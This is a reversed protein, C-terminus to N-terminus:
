NAPTDSGFGACRAARSTWSSGPRAARREWTARYGTDAYSAGNCGLSERHRTDFQVHLKSNTGM